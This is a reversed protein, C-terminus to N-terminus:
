KGVLSLILAAYKSDEPKWAQNTLGYADWLVQFHDQVLHKTNVMEQIVSAMHERQTGELQDLM